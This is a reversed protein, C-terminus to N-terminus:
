IMSHPFFFFVLCSMRLYVKHFGEDMVGGKQEDISLRVSLVPPLVVLAVKLM